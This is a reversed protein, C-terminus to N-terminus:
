LRELLADKFVGRLDTRVTSTPNMRRGTRLTLAYTSFACDRWRRCTHALAMLASTPWVAAAVTVLLENPMVSFDGGDNDDDDYYGDGLPPTADNILFKIYPRGNADDHWVFSERGNDHGGCDLPLSALYGSRGIIRSTATRRGDWMVGVDTHELLSLHSSEALAHAAVVDQFDNDGSLFLTQLSALSPAAALARVGDNGIHCSTLLLKRLCRLQSDDAALARVGADGIAVECLDLETLSALTPMKTLTVVGVASLANIDLRLVRLARWAGNEVDPKLSALMADSIDCYSLDLQTLKSLNPGTVLTRFSDPGLPVFGISLRRLSQLMSPANEALLRVGDHSIRRNTRIDLETLTTLVHACILHDVAANSLENNSIDLRRLSRLTSKDSSLFRVGDDGINNGSLDLDEVPAMYPSLTLVDVGRAGIKNGRFSLKRLTAAPVRLSAAVRFVGHADLNCYDLNLTRLSTLSTNQMLHEMADVREKTNLAISSLDLYTLAPLRAGGVIHVASTADDLQPSLVLVRLAGVVAVDAANASTLLRRFEDNEIKETCREVDAMMPQWIDAGAGPLPGREVLVCRRDVNM